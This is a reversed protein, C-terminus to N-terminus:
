VSAYPLPGSCRSRIRPELRIMVDINWVHLPSNRENPLPGGTVDAKGPRSYKQMSSMAATRLIMSRKRTGNSDISVRTLRRKRADQTEKDFM